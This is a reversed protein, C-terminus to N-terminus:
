CKNFVKYTGPVTSPVPFASILIACTERSLLEWNLPLIISSHFLTLEEPSPVLGKKAKYGQCLGKSM